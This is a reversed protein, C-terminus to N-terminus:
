GHLKDGLLGLCSTRHIRKMQEAVKIYEQFETILFDYVMTTMAQKISDEKQSQAHEYLGEIKRMCSILGEFDLM